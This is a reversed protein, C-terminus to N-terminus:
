VGLDVGAAEELACLIAQIQGDDEGEVMFRLKTETGSWRVLVRGSTGLKEEADRIVASVQELDSVPRRVKSVFSGTRQPVREFVACLDALSREKAVMFSLVKLATAVGDGTTAHDLLVVHGSQEGGLNFGRSRMAEVVYRDGVPTRVVDLGMDVLAREVGLNSMVTTVVGGGRLTGEDAMERACLALIADGDVIKGKQDSFIIRDADGDLAIGLDAGHQVVEKAMQEAHLAGVGDNINTGNPAVGLPIVEAGLERLVTPAIKYAAGHACDVVLKMGDLRGHNTFASKVHTIYRGPADDIRRARGVANGVAYADDLAGPLALEELAREAVDPLKFGDGAFLKIGNDQFPNHSASVMVGADARMSQVLYAVAPTPMPGVFLVDVGMACLGASLANEFMYCSLRTDKGVVVQGHHGFHTAVAMGVRMVVDPTMPAENACGRIGDTGFLSRKVM